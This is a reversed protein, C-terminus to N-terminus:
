VVEMGVELANVGAPTWAASTNPDQTRVDIITADSSGLVATTGYYNTTGSRVVPKLSIVGADSKKTVINTQVGYITATNAPLDAMTYTDRLGSASASVYDTASYPLEDVTTYNAGSSPTFQTSAGAGNPSIAYVRVDGLFTNYPALGTDDLIYIDDFTIWSAGDTYLVCTDVTDNTGGNKTNGTFATQQVGNYRVTVNGTTAHVSVQAELYGWTNQLVVNNTSQAIVTAGRLIQIAGTAVLKIYIIRRVLTM